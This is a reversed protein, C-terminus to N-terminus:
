KETLARITAIGEVTIFCLMAVIVTVVPIGLVVGCIIQLTLLM